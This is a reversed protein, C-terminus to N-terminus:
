TLDRFYWTGECSLSSVFALQGQFTCALQIHGARGWARPRTHYLLLAKFSETSLVMAFSILEPQTLINRSSTHLCSGSHFIIGFIGVSLFPGASGM